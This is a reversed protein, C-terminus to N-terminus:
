EDAADSTYLLCFYSMESTINLYKITFRVSLLVTIICIVILPISVSGYILIDSISIRIGLLIIGLRLIFKLSFNIGKSFIEGIKIFNGVTIGILIALLVTSIPSRDYFFIQKGIYNSLIDAILFIVTALLIGPLLTNLRSM